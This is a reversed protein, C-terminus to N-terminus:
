LSRREERRAGGVGMQLSDVACGSVSAGGQDKRPWQKESM